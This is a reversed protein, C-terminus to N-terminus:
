SSKLQIIPRSITWLHTLQFGLALSYWIAATYQVEPDRSVVKRLEIANHRTETM